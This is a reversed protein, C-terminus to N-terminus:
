RVVEQPEIWDHTDPNSPFAGFQVGWFTKAGTDQQRTYVGIGAYFLAPHLIIFRHAESGMLRAVCEAPSDQGSALVEGWDNVLPNVAKPRTEHNLGEPNTHSFYNRLPLDRTHAQMVLDLHISRTLAARGVAAREANILQFVQDSWVAHFGSQYPGTPDRWEPLAAYVNKLWKTVPSDGGQSHDVFSEAPLSNPMLAATITVPLTATATAGISDTVTVRATYTGPRGDYLQRHIGDTTTADVLGNGDWDWEFKVIPGNPSSSNASDLTIFGPAIVASINAFLVANPVAAVTVEAGATATGGDNDTVRLGVAHIGPTTLTTVVTPSVGSFHEYSGNGDLDWDFRAITGDPDASGSADLTVSLPASGAPPTAELHATPLVNPVVILFFNYTHHGLPNTVTLTAAHTGAAALVVRPSRESSTAPTAAASFTWFYELPEDGFVSATFDVTQGSRGGGPQVSAVLPPAEVLTVLNSGIGFEGQATPVVQYYVLNTPLEATSFSAAFTIGGTGRIGDDRVSIQALTTWDSQQTSYRLDYGFVQSGLNTGLPTIDAVSVTGNLDGDAVRAQEWQPDNSSLNLWKGLPALDAPSAEGDLNYDGPNRYSWTFTVVGADETATFDNVKAIERTPPASTQRAAGSEVMATLAGKLAAFRAPDVDAPTPLAAIQERLDSRAATPAFNGDHTGSCASLAVGALLAAVCAGGSRLALRFGM